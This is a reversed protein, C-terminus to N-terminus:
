GIVSACPIQFIPFEVFRETSDRLATNHAWHKRIDVEIPKVLVNFLCENWLVGSSFSSSDIPVVFPEGVLRSVVASLALSFFGHVEFPM